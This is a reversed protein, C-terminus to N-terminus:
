RFQSISKALESIPIILSAEVFVLGIALIIIIIPQISEGLTNVKNSIDLNYYELITTLTSSLEGTREGTVFAQVIFPPFLDPFNKISESIIKGKKTEESLYRIANKYYPNTIGQSVIELSESLPIGGKVLFILSQLFSVIYIEKLLSGIVPFNVFFNYLLLKGDDTKFFEILSYIFIILAALIYYWYNFVFNSINLLIQTFKPLNINNEIFIKSLQPVVNLFIFSITALFILFVIIPYYMSQIVKSFLKHQEEFYEALNEFVEELKGSIEGIRILRIMSNPFINTHKGLAESLPIGSIIQQYVDELIVKFSSKNVQYSLSKIAEDIPTKSKILFKFSRCFFALDLLSIKSFFIQFKPVSPKSIYTVVIGQNQLLLIAQEQNSAELIGSKFNGDQDFGRFEFKM